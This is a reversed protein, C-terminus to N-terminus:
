LFVVTVIFNASNINFFDSCGAYEHTTKMNVTQSDTNKNMGGSTNIVGGIIALRFRAIGIVTAADNPDIIPPAIAYMIPMHSNSETPIHNIFLTALGSCNAVAWSINRFFPTNINNKVATVGIGYLIMDIHAPKIPNGIHNNKPTVAINRVARKAMTAANSHFNWSRAFEITFFYKKGNVIPAIIHAPRPIPSIISIYTGREGGDFPAADVSAKRAPPHCAFVHRYPNGVLM